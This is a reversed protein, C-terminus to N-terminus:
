PGYFGAGLDISGAATANNDYLLLPSDPLMSELVVGGENYLVTQASAGIPFAPHAVATQPDLDTTIGFFWVPAGAAFGGTPLNATLTVEVSGDSGPAAVSSIIGLFYTGDPCKILLYDNAAMANDAVRKVPTASYDGPDLLCTFVAQAAAAVAKVTTRGLARLVTLTHATGAATVAVRTLKTKKRKQPPVVQTIVTGATQTTRGFGFTQLNALISM